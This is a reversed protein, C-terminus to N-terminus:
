IRLWLVECTTKALAMYEAEMTSLAVTPQKRSSWSVPANGLFSIYGSISRRDVTDNAWDADCFIKIDGIGGFTIGLTHTGRLYRFVRKLASMHENGPRQSFQSLHNVAFALDPRTGVALYMLKGLGSLYAHRFTADGILPDGDPLPSLKVNSDLPTSVINCDKMGVSDLVRLAYNAQSLRISGDPTSTIEMGLIQTLAGLDTVNFTSALEGKVQQLEQDSRAMLTMDDVHVSVITPNNTAPDRRM